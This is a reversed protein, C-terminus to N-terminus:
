EAPPNPVELAMWHTIFEGKIGTSTNIPYYKGGYYWGIFLDYKAGYIYIPVMPKPKKDKVEIWDM